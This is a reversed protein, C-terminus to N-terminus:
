VINLISFWLCIRQNVSINSHNNFYNKIIKKKQKLCDKNILFLSLLEAITLYHSIIELILISKQCLSAKEDVLLDFKSRKDQISSMTQKKAKLKSTPDATTINDDDKNNIKKATLDCSRLYLLLYLRKDNKINFLTFLDTILETSLILPYSFNCLHPIFEEIIEYMKNCAFDDLFPLKYDPVMNYNKLDKSMNITELMSRQKIQKANLNKIKIKKKLDFLDRKEKKPKLGEIQILNNIGAEIKCKLNSVIIEKWFSKTSYVKNQKSLVACLYITENTEINSYSVKDALFIISSYLSNLDLKNNTFNSNLCFCNLITALHLLNDYNSIRYFIKKDKQAFHIIFCKAFLSTANINNMEIIKSIEEAPIEKLEMLKKAFEFILKNRYQVSYEKIQDVVEFDLFIENYPDNNNSIKQKMDKDNVNDKDKNLQSPTYEEFVENHFIADSAKNNFLMESVIEIDSQINIQKSLCLISDVLREYIAKYNTIITSFKLIVEKIVAIRAEENTKIKSSVDIYKVNNLANMQNIKSIEYKYLQASNETQARLRLSIDHHNTAEEISINVKNKLEKHMQNEHEYTREASKM